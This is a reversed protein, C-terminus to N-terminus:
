SEYNSKFFFGLFKQKIKKKFLYKKIIDFNYTNEIIEKQFKILNKKKLFNIGIEFNSFVSKVANTALTDYGINATLSKEPSACLGNNLFITAYWFIAWTNIKGQYNRIVQYWFNYYGDYNFKKIMKNDFIKILEEPNKRFNVWRDHWTAWGWCHMGRWFFVDDTSHIEKLNYNWGNIHWIKKKIKM